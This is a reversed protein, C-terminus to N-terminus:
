KNGGDNLARDFFHIFGVFIAGVVGVFIGAFLIEMITNEKLINTVIVPINFIDANKLCFTFIKSKVM